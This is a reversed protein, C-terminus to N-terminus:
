PAYAKPYGNVLKLKSQIEYDMCIIKGIFPEAWCNENEEPAWGLSRLIDTREKYQNQLISMLLDKGRYKPVFERFDTDIGYASLM